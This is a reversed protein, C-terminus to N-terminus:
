RGPKTFRIGEILSDLSSREERLMLAGNDAVDHDGGDEQRSRTAEAAASAATKLRWTLGEDAQAELDESAEAIEAYLGQVAELKTLEETVTQRVLASDHNRICPVIAVHPTKLLSDLADPGLASSIKERLVEAGDPWHRLILARLDAHFPSNCTMRELSTEVEEAIEPATTLAALIVAERLYDPETQALASAKTGPLAAQPADWRRYAGKARPAPRFLQWRLDKIEQGYHSRISPDQIQGIKQRLAKDLAAKREPSDFSRGETERQWLLRVM